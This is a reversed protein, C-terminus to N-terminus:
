SVGGKCYDSTVATEPNYMVVLGEVFNAAELFNPFEGLSDPLGVDEYHDNDEDIEEVSIWVKYTM